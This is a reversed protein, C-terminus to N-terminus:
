FWSIDRAQLDRSNRRGTSPSTILNYLRCYMYFFEFIGLFELRGRRSIMKLEIHIHIVSELMGLRPRGHLNASEHFGFIERSPHTGPVSEIAHDYFRLIRVHPWVHPHYETAHWPMINWFLARGLVYLLLFSRHTFIGGVSVVIFETGIRHLLSRLHRPPLFSADWEDWRIIIKSTIM